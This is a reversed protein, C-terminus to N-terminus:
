FWLISLSLHCLKMNWHLAHLEYQRKCNAHVTYIDKILYAIYKWYLLWLTHKYVCLNYICRNYWKIMVYNWCKRNRKHAYTMGTNSAKLDHHIRFTMYLKVYQYLMAFCNWVGHLDGEKRNGLFLYEILFLGLLISTFYSFIKMYLRDEQVSCCCSHSVHVRLGCSHAATVKMVHFYLM